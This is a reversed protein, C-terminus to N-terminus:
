TSCGDVLKRKKCADKWLWWKPTPMVCLLVLTTDTENKCRFAACTSKSSKEKTTTTEGQWNNKRLLHRLYNPITSRRSNKKRWKSNYNKKQRFIHASTWHSLKHFWNNWFLYSKWSAGCAQNDKTIIDNTLSTNKKFLNKLSNLKSMKYMWM